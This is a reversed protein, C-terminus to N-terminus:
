DTENFLRKLEQLTMYKIDKDLLVVHVDKVLGLIKQMKLAKTSADEDLAIYITDYQFVETLYSDKLNTGLLAISDM